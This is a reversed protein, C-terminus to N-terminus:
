DNIFSAAKKAINDWYFHEFFIGPIHKHITEVARDIAHVFEPLNGDSVIFLKDGTVNKPVGIAGKIFSVATCDAALAEVLKTKIGGGEDIPNIFIDAALFYDSINDVFGPYVVKQMRYNELNDYSAPLKSGCIIVTFKHKTHQQVAPNIENLILDLARLNPPYNLTGNYLLIIDNKDIGHIAAIKQRAATKEEISPIHPQEIGYTIVRTKERELGFHQIAYQRDEESIFFNKDARRHTFREYFWLIKWWWRGTDRFRLSEINHSHVIFKVKTFWKLLIGLWGYYPHEIILHTIDNKRFEKKLIFFYAPNIYRLRHNSLINKVMFAENGGPINKQITYCTVNCYRSFYKLFLYIGKQGGMKAPMVQYSVLSAVRIM